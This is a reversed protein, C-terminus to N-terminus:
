MRPCRKGTRANISTAPQSPALDIAAGAAHFSLAKGELLRYTAGDRGVIVEILRGRYRLKFRYSEWSAPLSPDLVLGSEYDRMGAFGNVVAMWTGGLCAAHVGGATNDKFDDLDMAASHRFYTYADDAEGIESAVISHISPSLSSGHNTRPEYFAYNARKQELTFREGLVFMLLVVDAQKAVQMRWLNLPHNDNRLDTFRPVRSMDVPDLYLFSDDQEHIGLKDNYPIHMNDAARQWTHREEPQLHIRDALAAFPEPRERKMRDYVDAAFRLHWQALMNTYCNNNVGCGYEDPGCVVNICFKDGRLPIFKGRDALFRATEFLIEAGYDFLFDVDGTATVYRGIAYAIDSVLHYEATAAEYVIGCEEGSISNWSYLAGVGDMQRARERARDLLHYRYMLLPRVLEPQTYLFHPAVYMETDWFVHGWYHDGTMGCASISRHDDEPHSQRLHFMAFRVAQQDAVNGEIEIDAIDWYRKWFEVQESLLLEFGDTAAQRVGTVARPRVMEAATEISSHFCAHKDLVVTRGDAAQVTFRETFSDPTSELTGTSTQGGAARIRHAFAMGARFEATTPAAVFYRVDGDEGRDVIEVHDGELEGSKTKGKIISEFVVPGSFGMPTVEYRVAACHRRVMSVLRTTKIRVRRGGPSEWVLSRVVVGRRMDLERRYQSVQGAFMSFREGDVYLNIIRWDCLNLMVHRRAPYGPFSIVHEYPEYDYIGNLFMGPYAFPELADDDEEYTGRLGMLGNTLAFLSEWYQARKPNVETEALTWPEPLITSPRGTDLLAAIDIDEYRQIVVPANPLVDKPGVGVVKMRAALGAQVGSYADEFVICHFPPVGLRDAALLFIEPDPKAQQFDHGTVIADFLPVLDLRELVTTANRSSSCLGLKVGHARLGNLFDVAGPYLDSANISQLLENYYDNKRGALDAKQEGTLSVQNHDLIVQLSALRPVGRLQHNLQEDFAWGQEDALRKWALYHYKDTFAVVGDLDFLAAQILHKV